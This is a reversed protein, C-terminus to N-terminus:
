GLIIILFSIEFAMARLNAQWGNDCLHLRIIVNIKKKWSEAEMLIKWSVPLWKSEVAETKNKTPKKKKTKTLQM